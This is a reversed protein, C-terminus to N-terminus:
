FAFVVVLEREHRELEAQLAQRDQQFLSFTLLYSLVAGLAFAAVTSLASGRGSRRSSSARAPRRPSNTTSTPDRTVVDGGAIDLPRRAAIVRGPRAAAAAKPATENGREM